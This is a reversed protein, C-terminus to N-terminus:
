AIAFTLEDKGNNYLHRVWAIFILASVIIQTWNLGKWASRKKDERAELKERKYKRTYYLNRARKEKASGSRRAKFLTHKEASIHIMLLSAM